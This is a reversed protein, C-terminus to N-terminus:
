IPPPFQNAKSNNKIDTKHIMAAKLLIFPTFNAAKVFVSHIDHYEGTSIILKADRMATVTRVGVVLGHCALPRGDPDLDRGAPNADGQIHPSQHSRQDQGVTVEVSHRRLFGRAAGIRTHRSPGEDSYVGHAYEGAKKRGHM